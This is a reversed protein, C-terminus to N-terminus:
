WDTMSSKIFPTQGTFVKIPKPDKIPTHGSEFLVVIDIPVPVSNGPDEVVIPITEGIIPVGIYLTLALCFDEIFISDHDIDVIPIGISEVVFAGNSQVL